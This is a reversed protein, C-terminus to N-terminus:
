PGGQMCRSTEELSGPDVVEIYRGGAEWGHVVLRGHDMRAQVRNFYASHTIPGVGYLGARRLVAGSELDYAVLACGSAMTHYRLVLLVDDHPVLVRREMGGDAVDFGWLRRGNRVCELVSREGQVASRCRIGSGARVEDREPPAVATPAPGTWQWPISRATCPPAVPDARMESPLDTVEFDPAGIASRANHVLQGYRATIVEIYRGQTERGYVVVHDDIVRLRVENRYRSHVVPGLGLLPRRWREEGTGIDYAFLQAGSATPNYRVLFLTGGWRALQGGTPGRDTRRWTERGHCELENEGRRSTFTCRQGGPDDVAHRDADDWQWTWSSHDPAPDPTPQGPPPQAPPEVPPAPEPAPEPTSPRSDDSTGCHLLFAATVLVHAPRM